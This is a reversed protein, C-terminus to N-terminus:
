HEVVLSELKLGLCYRCGIGRVEMWGDHGVVAGVIAFAGASETTKPVLGERSMRRWRKEWVSLCCTCMGLEFGARRRSSCSWGM